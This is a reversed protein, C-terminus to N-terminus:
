VCFYHFNILQTYVTPVWNNFAHYEFDNIATTCMAADRMPQLCNSFFFALSVWIQDFKINTQIKTGM